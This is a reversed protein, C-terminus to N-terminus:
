TPCADEACRSAATSLWLVVKTAHLNVISLRAAPRLGAAKRMARNAIDLPLGQRLLWSFLATPPSPM